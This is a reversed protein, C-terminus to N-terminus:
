AVVHRDDGDHADGDVACVDRWISYMVGCSVVIMVVVLLLYVPVGIVIGLVLLMGSGAGLATFLMVLVGVVLAVIFMAVMAVLLLLALPLANRLAGTLGDALAAGTAKGRLAVQGLGIAQAAYVLVGVVMTVAFARGFGAPVAVQAAPDATAAMNDLYWRGAEPAVLAVLGGILAYQLLALALLIVIARLWTGTDAFGSFIQTATAPRGNEVADIVRLYGVLLAGMLVLLPLSIAMSLAFQATGGDPAVLGVALSMVVAVVFIVLALLAAGGFIAKPNSGGLNVANKFWRWGSVPGM